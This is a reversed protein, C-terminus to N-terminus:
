DLREKSPSIRFEKTCFWTGLTYRQHETERDISTTRTYLRLLTFLIESSPTLLSLHRKFVPFGQFNLSGRKM